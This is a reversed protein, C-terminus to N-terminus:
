IYPITLPGEPLVCISLSGSTKEAIEAIRKSLDDVPKLFAGTVEEETLNDTYLHVTAKQCIKAHIQAQWMDQIPQEAHRIKRLLLEPTESGFLLAGYEGHSPIGDWCDSAVVIDGHQKVIEYAASMGKVTQYLNLDLPYGSNSTLVIDYAHPVRVMSQKKVEKVGAAHAEHLNGAFVGTIEKDRNMSVNLLFTDPVMSAAEMVEEWIPNGHTIGWRAQSDDINKAGHNKQITDLLAVGPMLAKGGGSFGAFFHPEIFGTLVKLDCSLLESLLYVANGRSTKGVLEHTDGDLSDNQVITYSDVIDKGLIAILEDHTNTRHTGTANFFVAQAGAASIKELLPPLILHYPTARSIDSFVIGVKSGKGILREFPLSGIPSELAERLAGIQDPLGKYYYPEIVDVHADEPLEVELAGKGYLLKTKM